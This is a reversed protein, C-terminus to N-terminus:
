RWVDPKRRGEANYGGHYAVTIGTRKHMSVANHVHAKTRKAHPMRSPGPEPKKWPRGKRLVLVERSQRAWLNKITRRLSRTQSM